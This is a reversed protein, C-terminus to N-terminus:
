VQPHFFPSRVSVYPTSITVFSIGTSTDSSNELSFWTDRSNSNIYLYAKSSSEDPLEAINASISSAPLYIYRPFLGSITINEVSTNSPNLLRSLLLSESQSLLISSQGSGTPTSDPGNKTFQYNLKLRISNAYSTELLQILFSKKTPSISWISDSYPSMTITQVGTNPQDTVLGSLKLNEYEAVSVTSISLVSSISLLDFTGSDSSIILDLKSGIVVTTKTTPNASSFFLMPGLVILLLLIFIIVGDRLKEFLPRPNGRIEKRRDMIESKLNYMRFYIDEIEFTGKLSICSKMFTWDLVTRIEYFLPVKQYLFVLFTNWWGTDQTM